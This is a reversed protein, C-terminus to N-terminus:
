IMKINDVIKMVMKGKKFLNTILNYYYFIFYFLIFYVFFVFFFM